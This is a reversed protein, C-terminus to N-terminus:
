NFVRIILVRPMAAPVICCLVGCCLRGCEGWGDRVVLGARGRALRRWARVFSVREPLHSHKLERLLWWHSQGSQHYYLRCLPLDGTKKPDTKLRVRCCENLHGVNKPTSIKQFVEFQFMKFM